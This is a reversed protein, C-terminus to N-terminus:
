ALVKEVAKDLQTLKWVAVRVWQARYGFKKGTRKSRRDPLEIIHPTVIPSLKAAVNEALNAWNWRWLPSNSLLDGSMDFDSFSLSTTKILDILESGYREWDASREAGEEKAWNKAYREGMESTMEETEEESLEKLMFGEVVEEVSPRFRFKKEGGQEYCHFDKNDNIWRYLWCSRHFMEYTSINDYPSTDEDSQVYETKEAKEPVDYGVGEVNQKLRYAEADQDMLHNLGHWHCQGLVVREYKGGVYKWVESDICSLMTHITHM